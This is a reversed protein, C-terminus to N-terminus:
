IIKVGQIKLWMEFEPLIFLRFLDEDNLWMTLVENHTASVILNGTLM